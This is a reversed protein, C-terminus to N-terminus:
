SPPGGKAQGPRARSAGAEGGVQIEHQQASTLFCWDVTTRRPSYRLRLRLLADVYPRTQIFESVDDESAYSGGRAARAADYFWPSLYAVLEDNLRRTCDGVDLGATFEVRAHVRIRVYVPNVARVCVFPSALGKLYTEVAGLTQSSALPATPDVATLGAPGPVVVVLVDGPGTGPVSGAPLAQVKWLTPFRELALREYDWALQARDKHRLREGLRTEFARADERPRGGFSEMPQVIAGVDPLDQVSTTISYPPLPQALHAGSSSDPQWTALLAHPLITLTDPVAEPREAVAVRLWGLESSLVTNGAPICGPLDLATVGSNQLGHTTDALIREARLAQWRNATLCSWAVPPPAAGAPSEAALQFLLTLVQPSLLASFGLYLNGADPFLPLLSTMGTSGAEAAAYGGFPYLHFFLGAGPLECSATYHLHVGTLQPLYPENPYKLPQKVQMCEALCAELCTEYARELQLRAATLGAVFTAKDTSTAATLAVSVLAELVQLCRAMCAAGGVGATTPALSRAADLCRALREAREAGTARLAARADAEVRAVSEAGAQSKSKSVCRLFCGAVILLLEQELAEVFRTICALYDPDQQCQQLCSEVRAAAQKLVECEALCKDKCGSTDPLDEVVSNLVNIPYLDSGFAYSPATLKLELASQGPDYYAPTGPTPCVRLDDIRTQSCLTGNAAGSAPVCADHTDRAEFLSLTVVPPDRPLQPPCEDAKPQVFWTGPDLVRLTAQFKANDFLPPDKPPLGDLGLTYDKYWGTFGDDNPPLDFWDLVVRLSDPTKVFLERQRMRLYSGVTPVGGFLAFPTSPDVEGDTNELQVDTLDSVDVAIKVSEVPMGALLSFPYVRVRPDAAPIRAPESSLYIKLTPLAAALSSDPATEDGPPATEPDHPEIAPAAPPLVFQLTFRAPAPEIPTAPPIVHYGDVRFWGSATSAYLTFAQALLTRWVEAAPLQAAASIERLYPDLVESQYVASYDVTLTVVRQGGTLLLCWSAVAFGLAAPTTAEVETTGAAAPGFTPWAEVGAAEADLAIRSALVRQPVITESAGAAGDAPLVLAGPLVRLTRVDSLRAASVSLSKDAAYLVDRGDEDQGAPFLTGLPVTAAAVGEGEALAFALYVSDPVPGAPTARLVRRYYFDVYRRAFTNLTEQGHRFLTVFAIYLAIQPAHDPSQLTAPLNDLAFARLNSIAECFATAIPELHPLARDIKRSRTAGKYISGDPRVDDLQWLPAFGAWDLGIRRRLAEPLAAGEDYAKLAQLQVRLGGEVAAVLDQRMLRALDGGPAMELGRLWGNVQRGLAQVFAFTDRLLHFKREYPRTEATRLALARFEDEAAVPDSAAIGAFVMSPDSLFFEVWDGDVQDELDYFNILAGFEAGFDLLTDLSRGDVQAYGAQLARLWRDYQSPAGNLLLPGRKASM